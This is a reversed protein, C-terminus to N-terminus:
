VRDLWNQPNLSTHFVALIIISTDRIIYHIGYPFKELFVIRVENYRVQFLLPKVGIIGVKKSVQGKFKEGLKPVQQEYWLFAERMDKEAAESILITYKM